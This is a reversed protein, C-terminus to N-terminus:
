YFRRFPGGEERRVEMMGEGGKCSGRDGGKGGKVVCKKSEENGGKRREVKGGKQIETM